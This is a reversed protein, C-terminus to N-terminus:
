KTELGESDLAVRKIKMTDDDFWIELDVAIVADTSDTILKSIDVDRIKM